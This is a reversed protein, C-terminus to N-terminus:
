NSTFHLFACFYSPFTGGGWRVTLEAVLLREIDPEDGPRQIWDRQAMGNDPGIGTQGAEEVRSHRPPSGAGAGAGTGAGAGGLVGAGAMTHINERVVGAGGGHGIGGLSVLMVRDKRKDMENAVVV